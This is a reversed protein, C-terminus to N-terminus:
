TRRALADLLRQRAPPLPRDGLAPALHHALMHGTVALAAPVGALDDAAGLLLPPLPLLRDAYPGAGAQTVARGTRPSVYALGARAGTVACAGLDLGFGLEEILRMEWMAYAAEWPQGDAMRDLLAVTPGYLGPQPEREPLAFACLAVAASLGVLAAPDGLVGARSRVPEVVFTGLHDELRARWRMQLQAGPQLVPAMRRSGGGRVVGLHRGHAATLVDLIAQGEGHRRVALLAGEDQWEIM